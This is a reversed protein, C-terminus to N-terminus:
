PSSADPRRAPDTCRGEQCIRDGKCDTDKACGPPPALTAAVAVTPPAAPRLVACHYAVGVVTVGHGSGFTGSPWRRPEGQFQVHTAGARLGEVLADHRAIEVLDDDSKLGGFFPDATGIVPRLRVCQAEPDLPPQAVEPLASPRAQACGFLAAAVVIAARRADRRCPSSHVM